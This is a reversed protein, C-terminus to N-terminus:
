SSKVSGWDILVKMGKGALLDHYAQVMEEVPRVSILPELDFEALLNLGRTFSFPAVRIGRLTVETHWFFSPALEIVSGEPYMAAWVVTAGKDALELAQKTIALKGTADIVSEFGRGDTLEKAISMLDENIPDVVAIAGYKKALERRSAVPESVLLKTAGARKAIIASLLGIPGAGLVAATSGPHINAMDVTHLAVCVPELLAAVELSMNDPLKYVCSAHYMAYEANSGTASGGRECYAEMKNRCYYCTGCTAKFNLTVRDGIEIDQVESGFAVVTGSAEHGGVSERPPFPSPRSNFAPDFMHLESGCIGCYAIKVKVQNPGPDPLDPVDTIKIGGTFGDGLRVAARM